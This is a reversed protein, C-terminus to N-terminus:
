FRFQMGVSAAEAQAQRDYGLLWAWNEDGTGLGMQLWGTNRQRPLGALAFTVDPSSFEAAATFAM